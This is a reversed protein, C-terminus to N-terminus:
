AQQTKWEHILSEDIGLHTAARRNSGLENALQIAKLKEGVTFSRRKNGM